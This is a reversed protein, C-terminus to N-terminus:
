IPAQRRQQGDALCWRPVSAVGPLSSAPMDWLMTSPHSRTRASICTRGSASRDRRHLGRERRRWAVRASLLQKALLAALSWRLTIAEKKPFTAREDAPAGVM